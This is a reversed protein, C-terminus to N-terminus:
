KPTNCDGSLVAGMGETTTGDPCEVCRKDEGRSRFTGMPCPQCSGAKTLQEGDPCEDRCEEESTSMAELTTKGVGCPICEFSGANPQYFGFGCPECKNSALNLYHGADCRILCPNM